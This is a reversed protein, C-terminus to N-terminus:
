IIIKVTYTGDYVGAIAFCEGHVINLALNYIVSKCNCCRLSSLNHKM